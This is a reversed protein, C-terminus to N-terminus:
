EVWALIPADETLDLDEASVTTKKGDIGVVTLTKDALNLPLSGSWLAYVTQEGVTFKYQGEGMEEVRDFGDLVRAMAQLTTLFARPEGDKGPGQNFLSSAGIGSQDSGKLDVFMRGLGNEFGIVGYRFFWSAQFESSQMPLSRAQSPIEGPLASEKPTGSYTGFETVWLPKTGQSGEMLTNFFNLHAIWDEPSELAGARERNYHFNFVDLYADYGKEFFTEWFKKTEKPGPGNGVVELAGGNLVLADPDAAHITEYSLKLLEGYGEPNGGYGGCTGEVENGIEWAEVRTTLGPMDDVGDGDYREVVATLFTKYADVDTVGNGAQFDYYGFDIAKCNEKYAEPDVDQDWSAFPQIVASMVINAEGAAQMTADPLSWDYVGKEPEIVNWVFAGVVDRNSSFGTEEVLKANVVFANKLTTFYARVADEDARLASWGDLLLEQRDPRGELGDNSNFALMSAFLDTKTKEPTTQPEANTQKEGVVVQDTDDLVLTSVVLIGILVFAVLVIFLFIKRAM